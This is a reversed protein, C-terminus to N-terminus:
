KLVISNNNVILIEWEGERLSHDAEPEALRATQRPSWIWGQYGPLRGWVSRREPTCPAAPLLDTLIGLVKNICVSSFEAHKCISTYSSSQLTHTEIGDLSAFDKKGRYNVTKAKSTHM